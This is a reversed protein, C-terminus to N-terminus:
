QEPSDEWEDEWDEYPINWLEEKMREFVHYVIPCISCNEVVQILHFAMEEDQPHPYSRCDKPRSEYVACLNDSLFPCPADRFVFGATEHEDPELYREVLAPASVGLAAALRSMDPETLVPSAERCCNACARCDIQSSVEEHHKHVIADFEQVEVDLGKLFERFEWNEERREDALQEIREPDAELRKPDAEL